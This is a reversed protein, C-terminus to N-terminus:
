VGLTDPVVTSKPDVFFRRTYREEGKKTSKNYKETKMSNLEM